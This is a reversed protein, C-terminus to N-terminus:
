QGFILASTNSDGNPLNPLEPMSLSLSKDVIVRPTQPLALFQVQMKKLKLM